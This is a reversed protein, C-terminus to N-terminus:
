GRKAEWEGCWDGPLVQPYIPVKGSVEPDKEIKGELSMYFILAFMDLPRPAYRKCVGHNSIKKSYTKQFFRCTECNKM